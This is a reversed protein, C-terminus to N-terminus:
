SNRKPPIEARTGLVLDAKWVRAALSDWLRRLDKLALEKGQGKPTRWNGPNIREIGVIPPRRFGSNSSAPIAPFFSHMGCVPNKPTAGRYLRFEQAKGNDALEKLKPDETLPGGTVSLFAEPVKGELADRPNLPDYAFSDRVVFVTDLAWEPESNVKSGFAIVSGPALHKLGRKNRPLQGCNSYLFCEGFIFPDTNHLCRYTDKPIWYPKWLRSPHHPGSNTNFELILKSEPEWEGWARLNDPYTNGNEDTWDGRFQMFKRKHPNARGNRLTKNWGIKGNRDPKHEGGPHPFQVFCCKDDM